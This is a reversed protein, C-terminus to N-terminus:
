QRKKYYFIGLIGSVVLAIGISMFAVLLSDYKSAKEHAEGGFFKIVPNWTGTSNTFFDSFHDIASKAENAKHMGHAAFLILITGVAIAAAALTQKRNLSGIQFIM